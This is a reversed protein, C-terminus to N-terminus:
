AAEEKDYDEGLKRLFTGDVNMQAITAYGLMDLLTDEVSENSPKVLMHVLNQYRAVKDSLRVVVGMAGFALINEHGYDHQKRSVLEAVVFPNEGGLKLDAGRAIRGAIWNCEDWDSGDGEVLRAEEPPIVGEGTLVKWAAVRAGTEFSRDDLGLRDVIAPHCSAVQRLQELAEFKRRRATSRSVDLRSALDQESIREGGIADLTEVVEPALFDMCDSVSEAFQKQELVSMVESHPIAAMLSEMETLPQRPDAILEQRTAGPKGDVIIPADLAGLGRLAVLGDDYTFPTTM